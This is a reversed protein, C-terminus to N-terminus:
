VISKITSSVPNRAEPGSAPALSMMAVWFSACTVSVSVFLPVLGWPNSTSHVFTQETYGVSGAPHEGNAHKGGVEVMAGSAGPALAVTVNSVGVGSPSM